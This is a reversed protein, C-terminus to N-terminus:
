RAPQPEARLAAVVPALADALAEPEPVGAAFGRAIGDGYVAWMRRLMARGEATLVVETGRRDASSAERRLLGAAEIRDVLRSLGSRSMVVADALRSQRLRRGPAERVAWLVDYWALPPLGAEALAAEVREVVLAQAEILLRWAHIHEPSPTEAV